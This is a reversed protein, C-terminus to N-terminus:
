LFFQQLDAKPEASWGIASLIIDIPDIFTKQFQLNYDIYKNLELEEPLFDPFAVVNEQISNPVLLYIFKVKDGNHILQYKKDLAKAKLHHNYLLSGRVHIPTGKRYIGQRESYSTVDTV